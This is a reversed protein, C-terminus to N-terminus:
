LMMYVEDYTGTMTYYVYHFNTPCVNFSFTSADNKTCKSKTNNDISLEVKVFFVKQLIFIFSFVLTSLNQQNSM